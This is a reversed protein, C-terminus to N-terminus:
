DGPPMSRCRARFSATPTRAGGIQAPAILGPVASSARVAAGVDGANFIRTEGTALDTAVAAFRMPFDEIRHRRAREDIFRHLRDGRVVGLSGPLLGLGRASGGSLVLAVGGRATPGPEMFAPPPGQAPPIAALTACSALLLTAAYAALRASM